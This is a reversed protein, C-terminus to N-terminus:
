FRGCLEQALAADQVFGSRGAGEIADHYLGLADGTRGEIRAMEAAVLDRKHRYSTPANDAWVDLEHLHQELQLGPAGQVSARDHDSLAALTLAAYFHVDVRLFLTRLFPLWQISRKIYEGALNREGTLYCTQLRLLHFVAQGLGNEATEVLFRSEDFDDHDF